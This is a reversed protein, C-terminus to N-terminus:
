MELALSPRNCAARALLTPCSTDRTRKAKSSRLLFRHQADDDKSQASSVSRFGQTDFRALLEIWTTGSRNADGPWRYWAAQQIFRHIDNALSNGFADHYNSPKYAVMELSGIEELGEM